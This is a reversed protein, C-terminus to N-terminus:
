SHVAIFLPRKTKINEAGYKNRIDDMSLGDKKYRRTSAYHPRFYVMKKPPSFKFGAEKLTPWHEKTNGSVWVWAGCVEIVLGHLSIIKNLAFSIEEGYDYGEESKYEFPLSEKRLSEKAENVLKMMEIGASNRDPHFKFCAKRYAAKVVEETITTETVGLIKLADFKNMKEGRSNTEKFVNKGGGPVSWAQKAPAFISSNLLRKQSDIARMSLTAFSRALSAQRSGKADITLFFHNKLIEDSFKISNKPHSHVIKSSLPFQRGNEYASRLGTFSTSM